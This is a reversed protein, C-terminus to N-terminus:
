RPLESGKVKHTPGNVANENNVGEKTGSTKVKLLITQSNYNEGDTNSLNFLTPALVAGQPLGNIV